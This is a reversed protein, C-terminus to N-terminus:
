VTHTGEVARAEREKTRADLVALAETLAKIARENAECAFPSRQYFELRDKAAAIITEVFAGNPEKRVPPRGLPGNQWAICFGPGFTHGGAPRVPSDPAEMPEVFHFSKFEQLM